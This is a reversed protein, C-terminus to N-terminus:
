SQQSNFTIIDNVIKSCQTGLPVPCVSKLLHRTVLWPFFGAPRNFIRLSISFSPNMLPGSFWSSYIADLRPCFYLFNVEALLSGLREEIERDFLVSSLKSFPSSHPPFHSTHVLRQVAANLLLVPFSASPSFSLKCLIRVTLPPLFVLNELAFNLLKRWCHETAAVYFGPPSVVCKFLGHQM